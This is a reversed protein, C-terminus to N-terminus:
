VFFIVYSRRVNVFILLKWSRPLFTHMLKRYFIAKCGLLTPIRLYVFAFEHDGLYNLFFVHALSTPFMAVSDMKNNGESCKTLAVHLAHFMCLSHQSSATTGHVSQTDPSNSRSAVATRCQADSEPRYLPSTSRDSTLYPVTVCSPMVRDYQCM